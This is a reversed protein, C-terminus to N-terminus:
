GTPRERFINGLDDISVPRRNREQTARALEVLAGATEFQLEPLANPAHWAIAEIEPSCPQLADLDTGPMPRARFVVDVRQPVADIVVGPSGILEVRLGVEEHVERVAADNAAERRKLLGGPVGWKNRYTQRVFLLRGDSREVVVMSGVTFSPAITRVVWRRPLLPM